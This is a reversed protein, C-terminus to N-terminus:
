VLTSTQQGEGRERPSPARLASSPDSTIVATIKKAIEIAAEKHEAAAGSTNFGITVIGSNTRMTLQNIANNWFAEEGLGTLPENGPVNRYQGMIADRDIVHIAVTTSGLSDHLVCRRVTNEDGSSESDTAQILACPDPAKIRTEKPAERNCAVLILLAATFVRRRPRRIGVAYAM